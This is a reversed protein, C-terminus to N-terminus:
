RCGRVGHVSARPRSGSRTSSCASRAGAGGRRGASSRGSSRRVPPGARLPPTIGAAFVTASSAGGPRIRSATRRRAVAADKSAAGIIQAREALRVRIDVPAQGHAKARPYPLEEVTKGEPLLAEFESWNDFALREINDVFTEAPAGEALILSHDDLEVHYYVWVDPVNPERVISAGNVLAGAQIMVGYVLLAHDPSVLLDRSPVSEDFTGAKVRITALGSAAAPSAWSCIM